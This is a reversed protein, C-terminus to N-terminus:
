RPQYCKREPDACAEYDVLRDDDGIQTMSLNCWCFGAGQRERRGTKTDM